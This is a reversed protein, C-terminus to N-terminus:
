LIWIYISSPPISKNNEPKTTLLGAVFEFNQTCVGGTRGKCPLVIGKEVETIELEEESFRKKTFVDYAIKKDNESLYLKSMLDVNPENLTAM